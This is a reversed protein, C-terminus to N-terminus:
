SKIFFDLSAQFIAKTRLWNGTILRKGGRLINFFLITIIYMRFYKRAFKLANLTYYYEALYGRGISGGVKDYAVAQICVELSAGKQHAQHCWDAEEWYLFYNEDMLGFREFNSLHTFLAGGHISNLRHIQSSERIFSVTGLAYNIKTGGLLFIEKPAKYKMLKSGIISRSYKSVAFAVLEELANNEVLMDPNLLWVYANENCAKKLFINNGAAFGGNRDSQILLLKKSCTGLDLKEFDAQSCYLYDIPKSLPSEFLHKLDDSVEPEFDTSEAWDRIFRMSLNPSCNDVWAVQFAPYTQRLVSELCDRSDEWSNYNLILIYVKPNM